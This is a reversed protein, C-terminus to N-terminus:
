SVDGEGLATAFGVSRTLPRDADGCVVEKRWVKFIAGVACHAHLRVVRSSRWVVGCSMGKRANPTLTPQARQITPCVRRRQAADHKRHRLDARVILELLSELPAANHLFTERQM